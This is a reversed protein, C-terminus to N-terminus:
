LSLRCRMFGRFQRSPSDFDVVVYKHSKGTNKARAAPLTGLQEGSPEAVQSPQGKGSAKARVSASKSRIAVVPATIIQDSGPGLGLWKGKFGKGKGVHHLGKMAKGESPVGKFSKGIYSPGEKGDTPVPAYRPIKGKQGAELGKSVQKGQVSRDPSATASKPQLRTPANKTPLLPPPFPNSAFVKQNESCVNVKSAPTPPLLIGHNRM